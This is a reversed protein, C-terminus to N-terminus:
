SVLQACGTCGGVWGGVKKRAAEFAATADTLKSQAELLEAELGALQAPINSSSSAAASSSSPQLAAAVGQLISQIRGTTQVKFAQL